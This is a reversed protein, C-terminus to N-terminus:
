EALLIQVQGNEDSMASGIEIPASATATDPRGPLDAMVSVIAHDIPNGTLTPDRLTFRLRTPAPVHIDPISSSEAGVTAAVVVRPFGTGEQPIVTLVYPGPDLEVAFTGDSATRGRGPRPDLKSTDAPDAIALVDASSLPRGDTLVVKGHLLPRPPTQLTLATVTRDIDIDNQISKAQGTGIAPEITVAYKGPPLVTAFRGKDDTDLSTSYSLVKPTTLTTISTSTFTLRAGYGYLPGSDSVVAVVGNVTVPPPLPPYDLAKLGSGSPLDTV